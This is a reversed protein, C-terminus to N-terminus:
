SASFTTIISLVEDRHSLIEQLDASPLTGLVRDVVSTAVPRGVGIRVRAFDSGGTQSIIDRIGNHGAHGGWVKHQITGIPLDIDDHLILIDSKGIQYLQMADRVPGGSCNM